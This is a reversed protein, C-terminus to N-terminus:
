HPTLLYRHVALGATLFCVLAATISANSVGIGVAYGLFEKFYLVFLHKLWETVQM